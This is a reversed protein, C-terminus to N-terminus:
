SLLLIQTKNELDWIASFIQKEKYIISIPLKHRPYYKAKRQNNVLTIKNGQNFNKIHSESYISNQKALPFIDCPNMHTFHSVVSQIQNRVLSIKKNSLHGVDEADFKQHFKIAIDLKIKIISGYAVQQFILESVAPTANLQMRAGRFTALSYDFNTNNDTAIVQHVTDNSGSGIRPRSEYGPPYGHLKYCQSITHGTMNCHKCFLKDRKKFPDSKTAFAVYRSNDM